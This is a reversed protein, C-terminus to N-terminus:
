NETSARLAHLLTNSVAYRLAPLNSDRRHDHKTHRTLRRQIPPFAWYKERRCVKQHLAFM